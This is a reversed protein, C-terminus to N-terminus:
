ECLRYIVPPLSISVAPPTQGMVTYRLYTHTNTLVCVLVGVYFFSFVCLFVGELYRMTQTSEGVPEPDTPYFPFRRTHIIFTLDSESVYTGVDSVSEPM